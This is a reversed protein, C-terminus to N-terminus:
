EMRYREEALRYMSRWFTRNILVVTVILTLTAALLLAYDGRATAGAILAGIGTTSHTRGAFETREAVISANWAGGAATIAGTVVYPFIAPLILVRWRDLLPLRLLDTTFRLDQPIASAGAIVNFLLYWQTGMLMLVIAALNLGGPASLLALVIVPFLATAPISAVVQVIPQALSALRRNMGIAVGAPVTWALAVLLAAAVRLFTAALGILLPKWSSAPLTSLLVFARYGGYLVLLATAGGALLAGRPPGTRPREARTAEPTGGLREHMFRDLTEGLPAALRRGAREILSSRSVLDGFWCRPPAEGAVTDVRFKDAWSLLPRWLIQDLVVITAVLAAVGALVARMEGRNAAEQLYAGLGPLRFDREGVRFIEAAMLFFWGGAWSMMSNWILGLAAFPLELTKFRLWPNFRFIAAAERLENPLTTISQYFSYTMNWAQSTFILLVAALEAAPKQPLIASLGLLVVPLFSLIPVSQLIDLLPILVRRAARSRAATYGYVLTFVLSLVYAAAMRAASLLAYLPLAAPSLSIAPGRLVAPARWGVRLGAALLGALALVIVADGATFGPRRLLPPSFRLRV